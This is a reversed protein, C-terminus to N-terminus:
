IRRRRIMCAGALSCGGIIVAWTAPEPIVSIQNGVISIIDSYYAAIAVSATFQTGEITGIGSLIGSLLWSGDLLQYFLAGGSDGSQGQAEGSIPDYTTILGVTMPGDSVLNYNSYDAVQNTGWTMVGSGDAVMIVPQGVGPTSESITLNELDPAGSTSVDIRYLLLDTTGIRQASGAVSSYTTGGLQIGASGVHNATIVWYGTDYSGLYVGSNGVNDWPLGDRPNTTHGTAGDYIVLAHVSSHVALFLGVLLAFRGLLAPSKKM